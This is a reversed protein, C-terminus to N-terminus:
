IELVISNIEKAQLPVKMEGSIAKMEGTIATMEGTIATMEGTIATMEGTISTIKRRNELFEERKEGTGATAADGGLHIKNGASSSRFVGKTGSESGKRLPL